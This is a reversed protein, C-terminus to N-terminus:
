NLTSRAMGHAMLSRWSGSMWSLPCSPRKMSSRPRRRPGSWPSVYIRDFGSIDFHAALNAAQEKGLSTLYTQPSNITGQKLGAKNASTQGHRVIYFTTM